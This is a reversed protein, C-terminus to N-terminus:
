VVDLPSGLFEFDERQLCSIVDIGYESVGFRPLFDHFTLIWERMMMQIAQCVTETQAAVLCALSDFVDFM